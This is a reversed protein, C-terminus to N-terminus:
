DEKLAHSSMRMGGDAPCSNDIRARYSKILKAIQGRNCLVAGNSALYKNM